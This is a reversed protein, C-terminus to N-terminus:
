FGSLFFYVSLSCNCVECGKAHCCFFLLEAQQLGSFIFLVPLFLSKGLYLATNMEAFPFTAERPHQLDKAHQFSIHPSDLFNFDLSGVWYCYLGKGRFRKSDERKSVPPDMFCEHLRLDDALSTDGAFVNIDKASPVPGPLGSSTPIRHINLFGPKQYSAGVFFVLLHSPSLTARFPNQGDVTPNSPLPFISPAGKPLWAFPQSTQGSVLPM